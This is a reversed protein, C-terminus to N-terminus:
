YIFLYILLYIIDFIDTKQAYTDVCTHTMGRSNLILTREIKVILSPWFIESQQYEGCREVVKVPHPSPSRPGSAGQGVSRSSQFSSGNRM